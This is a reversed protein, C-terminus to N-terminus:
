KLKNTDDNGINGMMSQLGSFLAGMNPVGSSDGDMSSACQEAVSEITKLMDAPISTITTGLMVLTQLYSWIADKTNNSLDKTWWKKINLKNLFEIDNGTMLKENKNQIDNQYPGIANMFGEVVKKSNAKRLTQFKTSEIKLAKEEPLTEILENIFEEMMSNFAQYSAM